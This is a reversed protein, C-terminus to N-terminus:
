SPNEQKVRIQRIKHVHDRLTTRQREKSGPYKKGNKVRDSLLEKKSADHPGQEFLYKSMIPCDIHALGRQETYHMNM